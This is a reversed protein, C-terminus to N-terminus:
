RTTQFKYVDKYETDCWNCHSTALATGSAPKYRRDEIFHNGERTSEDCSCTPAENRTIRTGDTLREIYRLLYVETISYRCHPCTFEPDLTNGNHHLISPKITLNEPDADPHEVCIHEKITQITADRPQVHDLDTQSM